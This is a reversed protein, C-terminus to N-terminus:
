SFALGDHPRGGNLRSGAARSIPMVRTAICFFRCGGHRTGAACTERPQLPHRRERTKGEHRGGGVLSRAAATAGLSKAPQDALVLQGRTVQDLGDEHDMASPDLALDVRHGAHLM